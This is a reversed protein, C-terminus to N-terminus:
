HVILRADGYGPMQRVRGEDRRAQELDTYPGVFVQYWAGRESSEARATRVRFGLDQLQQSLTAAESEHRFSGVVVSYTQADAATAPADSM